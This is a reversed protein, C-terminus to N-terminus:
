RYRDDDVAARRAARGRAAEHAESLLTLVQQATRDPDVVSIWGASAYVPHPVIVDSLAPDDAGALERARERGVEINVRFRGPRDLNSATDGPYDKTVITGYPQGRTPMVGHPAYYFFADGWSIEPLDSGPEPQVVLVGDFLRIRAILTQM